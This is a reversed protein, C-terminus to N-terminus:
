IPEGVGTVNALLGEEKDQNNVRIGEIHFCM